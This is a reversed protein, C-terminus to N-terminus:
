TGGILVVTMISPRHRGEGGEVRAQEPAGPRHPREEDDIGNEADDHRQEDERLRHEQRTDGRAGECSRGERLDTPREHEEAGHHHCAREGRPPELHGAPPCPDVDRGPQPEVEDLRPEAATGRREVAGLARLDRRGRHGADVRELRREGAVQRLEDQRQDDRERDERQDGRDIEDGGAHHDQRERQDRDEHPEDAAVRLATGTLPPLRHAKKRVVEEVDDAAEGRQPREVATLCLRLPDDGDAVLVAPGRHSRQARREEGSRHELECCGQPDREDGDHDTDAEGVAVDPELRRQRHQHECGLEVERQAGEPRLEM